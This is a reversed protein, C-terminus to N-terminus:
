IQALLGEIVQITIQLQVKNTQDEASDSRFPGVGEYESLDKKLNDLHETLVARQKDETLSLLYGSLEVNVKGSWIDQLTFLKKTESVSKLM